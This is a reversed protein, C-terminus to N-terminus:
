RSAIAVLSALLASEFQKDRIWRVIDESWGKGDCYARGRRLLLKTIRHRARLIDEPPDERARV